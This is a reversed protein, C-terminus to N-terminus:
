SIFCTCTYTIYHKWDNYYNDKPLALM